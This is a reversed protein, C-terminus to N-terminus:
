VESRSEKDMDGGIMVNQSIMNDMDETLFVGSVAICRSSEVNM